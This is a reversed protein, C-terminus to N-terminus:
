GRVKIGNVKGAIAFLNAWRDGAMAGGGHYEIQFSRPWSFDLSQMM